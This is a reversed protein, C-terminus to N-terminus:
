RAGACGAGCYIGDRDGPDDLILLAGRNVLEVGCTRCSPREGPRLIPPREPEREGGGHIVEM